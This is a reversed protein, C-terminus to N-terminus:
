SMIMRMTEMEAMLLLTLLVMVVALLMVELLSDM